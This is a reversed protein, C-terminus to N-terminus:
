HTGTAATILMFASQASTPGNRSGIASLANYDGVILVGDAEGAFYPLGGTDFPHLPLSGLHRGTASYSEVTVADGVEGRVIVRVIGGPAIAVDLVQAFVRATGLNRTWALAGDSARYIAVSTATDYPVFALLGSGAARHGANFPFTYGPAGTTASLLRADEGVNGNLPLQLYDGTGTPLLAEGHLGRLAAVPVGTATDLVQEATLDGYPCTTWLALQADGDGSAAPSPAMQQVPCSDPLRYTWARKGDAADFATVASASALAIRATGDATTFGEMTTDVGDPEDDWSGSPPLPASTDWHRGTRADVFSLRGDSWLVAAYRDGAAGVSVVTPRGPRSLRWVVASTAPSVASVGDGHREVLLGAVVVPDTGFGSRVPGAVLPASAEAPFPGHPGSVSEFPALWWAGAGLGAVVLVAVAAGVAVARVRRARRSRPPRREEQDPREEQEPQEEQDPQEEAGAGAAWEDM